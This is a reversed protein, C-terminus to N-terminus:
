PRGSEGSAAIRRLEAAFNLFLTVKDAGTESEQGRSPARLLAFRQGDPHVDYSRFPNPMVRVDSWVRPRGPHFSDGEIRYPAAMIKQDSALYFLEKGTPSWTPFSGGGTSVLWKGGPGPFPRVYVEFAGSEDTHYALWRGDPSFVAEGEYYPSKLFPTPKGPRWGSVEDGEMPLVWIDWSTGPSNEYFALFRGSPHWSTPCQVQSSETLRQAEGTGDTRQWWLNWTRGGRASFYAIRRGDPTWVPDGDEAPDFTMRSLSDREWEYVWVETDPGSRLDLALRRGDPSFRLNKYDGPLARLPQIAGQRDVWHIPAQRGGSQGPVYVLTGDDSLAFQAAASFPDADVGEIVPRAPGSAALRELDFPVAFLTGQNVYLLHGSVYRGHYGGEHVVTRPGGPLQQVVLSADEYSGIRDDATFLVGKGRPLVQPWM